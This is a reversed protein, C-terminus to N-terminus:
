AKGLASLIRATVEDMTGTGDVHHVTTGGSEYYPICPATVDDYITQRDRATAENQDDARGSEKGRELIRQVAVESEVEISVVATVEHGLDALIKTLEHAQAVNRPYGDLLVGPATDPRALRERVMDDTVADPVLNGSDMIQRVQQGLESNRSLHERFMDGTSVHPVGLAEKLRAAQTGKGCGPPGFLIIIQSM